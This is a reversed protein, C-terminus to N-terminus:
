DKINRLFATLYEIVFDAIADMPMVSSDFTLHYSASDGWTRDTYFNYFEARLRNTKRRVARAKDADRCDGRSLIRAVCVDEPANLFINLVRPVDRLVYDATRGVIVCPGRRALEHMFESQARYVADSSSGGLSAYWSMANYGPSMSPFGGLLGPAREDNREFLARSLGSHSAAEVLLEKDYYPIGLKASLARGLERGGAGFARGITIVYNGVPGPTNESMTAQKKIKM